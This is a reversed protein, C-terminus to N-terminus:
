AKTSSTHTDARRRRGQPDMPTRTVGVLQDLDLAAGRPGDASITSRSRPARVLAIETFSDKVPREISRTSRARRAAEDCRNMAPTSRAGTSTPLRSRHRSRLLGREICRSRPACSRPIPAVARALPGADGRVVGGVERIESQPHDAGLFTRLALRLPAGRRRVSCSAGSTMTVLSAPANAETSRARASRPLPTRPPSRRRGAPLTKSRHRHHRDRVDERAMSPPAPGSEGDGAAGRGRLISSLTPCRDRRGATVRPALRRAREAARGSRHAPPHGCSGATARPGSREDM